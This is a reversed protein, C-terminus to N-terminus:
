FACKPHVTIRSMQSKGKNFHLHGNDRSMKSITLLDLSGPARWAGTPKYYSRPPLSPPLPYITYKKPM